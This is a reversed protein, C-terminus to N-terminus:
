GKDDDIPPAALQSANTAALLALLRFADVYQLWNRDAKSSYTSWTCIAYRVPWKIAPIDSWQPPQVLQKVDNDGRMGLQVEM